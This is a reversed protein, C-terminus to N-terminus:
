SKPAMRAWCLSAVLNFCGIRTCIPKVHVVHLFAGGANQRKMNSTGPEANLTRTRPIPAHQHFNLNLTWTKPNLTQPEPDLTQPAPNPTQLDMRIGHVWYTNVRGKGKVPIGPLGDQGMRKKIHFNTNSSQLLSHTLEAVQIKMSSSTSEMRSAFNVTDGFLCYRPMAKGVVGAVVPGSALGCRILVTTGDEKRFNKVAELAALAFKAVKEAGEPPPCVNPAGGLVMYADGITEVQHPM